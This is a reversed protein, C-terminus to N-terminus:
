SEDAFIDVLRRPGATVGESAAIMRVARSVSAFMPLGRERKLKQLLEHTERDVYIRRRDQWPKGTRETAM